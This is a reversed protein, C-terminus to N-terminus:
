IFFTDRHTDLHTFFLFKGARLTVVMIKEARARLTWLKGGARVTVKRARPVAIGAIGAIKV